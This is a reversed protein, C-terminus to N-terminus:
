LAPHLGAHGQRVQRGAAVLIGKGFRVGPQFQVEAVFLQLPEALFDEGQLIQVIHRSQAVKGQVM